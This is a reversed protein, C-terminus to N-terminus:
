LLRLPSRRLFRRSWNANAGRAIDGCMRRCSCRRRRFGEAIRGTARVLRARGTRACAARLAAHGDGHADVGCRGSAADHRELPPVALAAAMGVPEQYYSAVFAAMDLVDDPVRRYRWSRSSRRCNKRRSKRHRRRRGHRCRRAQATRAARARHQRARHRLAEPAWYDFTTDAAVPLAVRAIPM